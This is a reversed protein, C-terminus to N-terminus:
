EINKKFFFFHPSIDLSKKEFSNVVIDWVKIIGSEEASFLSDLSTVSLM